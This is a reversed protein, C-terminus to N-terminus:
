LGEKRMTTTGEVTGGVFGFFDGVLSVQDRPVTLRVTVFPDALTAETIQIVVEDDLGMPVLFARAQAEMDVADSGQLVGVRAGERSANVITHQVTFMWGFEIIGFILALMLPTIIAM